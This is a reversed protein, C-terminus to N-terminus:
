FFRRKTISYLIVLALYLPVTLMLPRLARTSFDQSFLINFIFTLLSPAYDIGEVGIQAPTLLIVLLFIYTKHYNRKNFSAAVLSFFVSASLYLIWYM